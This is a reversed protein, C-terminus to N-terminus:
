KFKGYTDLSTYCFVFLLYWKLLLIASANMYLMFNCVHFFDHMDNNWNKQAPKAGNQLNCMLWVATCFIRLIKVEFHIPDLRSKVKMLAICIWLRVCCISLQHLIAKLSFLKRYIQCKFWFHQCFSDSWARELVTDTVVSIYSQLACVVYMRVKIKNEELNFLFGFLYFSGPYFFSFSSLCLFFVGFVGFFDWGFWIFFVVLVLFGFGFWCHLSGILSCTDGWIRRCSKESVYIDTVYSFLM